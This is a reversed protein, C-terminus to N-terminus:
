QRVHLDPKEVCCSYDPLESDRCRLIKEGAMTRKCPVSSKEVERDFLAHDKEWGVFNAAVRHKIETVEHRQPQNAMM